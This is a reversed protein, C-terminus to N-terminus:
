FANPVFLKATFKGFSNFSHCGSLFLVRIVPVYTPTTKGHKEKAFVIVVTIRGTSKSLVKNL